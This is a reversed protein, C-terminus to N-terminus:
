VLGYALMAEAVKVFGALNSGEVYNIPGDEKGYRVRDPETIRELIKAQVYEPHALLFPTVSEALEQAAQLFASEGPNGTLFRTACQLARADLRATM